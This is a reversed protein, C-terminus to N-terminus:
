LPQRLSPGIRVRAHFVEPQQPLFWSQSEQAWFASFREHQTPRSFCARLIMLSLSSQRDLARM